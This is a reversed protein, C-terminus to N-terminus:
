LDIKAERYKQSLPYGLVEVCVRDLENWVAEMNGNHKAKLVDVLALASKSPMKTISHVPEKGTISIMLECIANQTEYIITCQTNM